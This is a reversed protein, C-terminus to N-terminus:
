AVVRDAGGGPDPRRWAPWCRRGATPARACCWARAPRAAAARDLDALVFMHTVWVEFRGRQAAAAALAQACPQRDPQRLDSRPAARRAWRRGPRPAPRLGPARHGPLPVLPQLARAGADARRRQLWSAAHAPGPRPRRREPQAPHQLRRPPLRPPDFTGPPWRTACRWCWAAPACCRWRTTTRPRCPRPLWAAAAAAALLSRRQM